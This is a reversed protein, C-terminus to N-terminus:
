SATRVTQQLQTTTQATTKAEEFMTYNENTNEM